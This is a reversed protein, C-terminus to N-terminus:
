LRLQFTGLLPLHDSAVRALPISLVSLDLMEIADNCFLHDLRLLPFRSPFTPRLGGPKVGTHLSRNLTKFVASSPIANLDGGFIRPRDSPGLWDEGLLHNIQLMREKRGLGLHTNIIQVAQGGIEVEVWIAGRPEGVSPLAVTRIARSPLATLIADGYQEEELNLAPHFHSNMSLCAAIEAAQDVRGTRLRGVDLEQLLVIDAQSEVIVDVVRRIDLRRDTGVCRHVNYTLVTFPATKSPNYCIQSMCPSSNGGSKTGVM